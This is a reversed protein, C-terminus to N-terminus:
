RGPLLYSEWLDIHVAQNPEASEGWLECALGPSSALAVVGPENALAGSRPPGRMYLEGSVGPMGSGDSLVAHSKM